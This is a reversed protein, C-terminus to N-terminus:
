PLGELIHWFPKCQCVWSTVLFMRDCFFFLVIALLSFVRSFRARARCTVVCLKVIWSTYPLRERRLQMMTFSRKYLHDHKLTELRIGFVRDVM